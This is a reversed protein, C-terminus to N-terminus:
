AAVTKAGAPAVAAPPAEASDRPALLIARDIMRALRERAKGADLGSGRVVEGLPRKGDVLALLKKDEVDMVYSAGNKLLYAIDVPARRLSTVSPDRPKFADYGFRRHVVSPNGRLV